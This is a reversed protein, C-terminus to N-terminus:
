DCDCGLSDEFYKQIKDMEKIREEYIINKLIAITDERTPVYDELIITDQEKQAQILIGRNEGGGGYLSIFINTLGILFLVIIFGFIKKALGMRPNGAGDFLIENVVKSNHSTGKAITLKARKNHRQKM